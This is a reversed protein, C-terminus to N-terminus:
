AHDRQRCAALARRIGPGLNDRGPGPRHGPLRCCLSLRWGDVGLGDPQEADWRDDRGAARDAAALGLREFLTQGQVYGTNELSQVLDAYTNEVPDLELDSPPLGINTLWNVSNPPTAFSAMLGPIVIVPVPITQAVNVLTVTTTGAVTPSPGVLTNNGSGGTFTFTGGGVPLNYSDDYSLLMNNGSGTSNVTFSQLGTAGLGGSQIIVTDDGAGSPTNVTVGTVSSFNVPAFATGTATGSIQSQGAAPSGITVNAAGGPTNFQFASLNEVSLSSVGQFLITSVVADGIHMVGAGAQGATPIYDGPVNGGTLTLTNGAGSGQYTVLVAFPNTFDITLADDGEADIVIATTGSLPQSAVVEGASTIELNGSTPDLSLTASHSAGGVTAFDFSFPATGTNSVTQNLPTSTSAVFNNDGQYVATIAHAGIALDSTSFSAIGSTLSVTALVTAGDKFVVSGGPTGSGPPVATVAANITVQQGFVSPNTVTPPESLTVTTSAQSVTQALTTSTSALFDPDTSGPAFSASFSHPGVSLASTSISATGSSLSASGLVSSGDYFTVTGTPYGSGPGPDGPAVTATLTVAQGFVPLNASPAVTTITSDPTVVESTGPSSGGAFDADGSYQVSLSHTAASLSPDTFSATGAALTATGIVTTGDYFSVTGTPTGSGPANASVTATLTVNQGYITSGPSATLASTTADHSVTQALSALDDIAAFNSDGSYDFSLNDNGTALSSVALSATGSSLLVTGLSTGGDYFTVSGTPAVSQDSASSVTATLTLSEGFVDASDSSSLTGMTGRLSPTVTVPNSTSAVSNGTPLYVATLTASQSLEVDSFSANGSPDLTSTALPASQGAAMLEVTGTAAGALNTFPTVSVDFTLPEGAYVPGTTALSLTTATAFQLESTDVSGGNNTLDAVIGNGSVTGGSNVTIPSSTLNSDITLTGGNVLTSGTYTTPDSLTLSGATLTLGGTGSVSGLALTGTTDYVLSGNDLVSGTGLSGAQGGSGVQLTTNPDITTTGSYSNTAALIVTASGAQTVSGTGSIVSGVLVPGSSAFDVELSANDVVTSTGLSDASTVNATGPGQIILTGTGSITNALTLTQSSGIQYELSADVTTDGIDSNVGSLVLTGSGGVILQDDALDGTDSDDAITGTYTLTYGSAVDIEESTGTGGLIIERTSTLTFTSTALLTGGELMLHDSVAGLNSDQSIGLVGGDITTTGSFSGSNAAGLILTGSGVKTLGHSGTLVGALDLTGAGEVEM